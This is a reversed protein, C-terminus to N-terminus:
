KTGTTSDILQNRRMDILLGYHKIFNSGIILFTINAIVSSWLFDCHMGLDLKIQKQGIDRITSDYAVFLTIAPSQVGTLEFSISPYYLFM